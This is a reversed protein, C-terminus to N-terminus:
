SMKVFFSFFLFFFFLFEWCQIRGVHIKPCVQYALSYPLHQHTIIYGTDLHSSARITWQWKDILVAKIVHTCRAIDRGKWTWDTWRGRAITKGDPRGERSVRIAARHWDTEATFTRTTLLSVFGTIRWFLSNVVFGVHSTFFPHLPFLTCTIYFPQPSSYLFALARHDWTTIMFVFSATLRYPQIAVSSIVVIPPPLQPFSVLGWFTQSSHCRLYVYYIQYRWQDTIIIHLFMDFIWAFFDRKTQLWSCFSFFRLVLLLWRFYSKPWNHAFPIFTLLWRRRWLTFRKVKTAQIVVESPSLQTEIQRLFTLCPPSTVRWYQRM